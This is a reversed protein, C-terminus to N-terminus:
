NTSSGSIKYESFRTWTTKSPQEERTLYQLERVEAVGNHKFGDTSIAVPYATEFDSNVIHVFLKKDGRTAVVDIKSAMAALPKKGFFFAAKRMPPKTEFVVELREPAHNQNFFNVTEAQPFFFPEHDGGGRIGPNRLASGNITVAGFSHLQGDRIELPLVATGVRIIKSIPIPM